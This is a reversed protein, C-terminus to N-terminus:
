SRIDASDLENPVHFLKSTADHQTSVHSSRAMYFPCVNWHSAWIRVQYTLHSFQDGITCFSSTALLTTMMENWAALFWSAGVEERKRSKKFRKLTNTFKHNPFMTFPKPQNRCTKQGLKIRNQLIARQGGLESSLLEKSHIAAAHALRVPPALAHTRQKAKSRHLCSTVASM